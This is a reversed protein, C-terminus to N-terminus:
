LIEGGYLININIVFEIMSENVGELQLM